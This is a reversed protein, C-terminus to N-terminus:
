PMHGTPQPPPLKGSPQPIPTTPLTGKPPPPVQNIPNTLISNRKVYVTVTSSSLIVNNQDDRIQAEFVYTDRDLASVPFDLYRDSRGIEKGNSLLVVQDPKHLEPDTKVSVYFSDVARITEQDNPAIIDVSVYGEEDDNENMKHTQKVPTGLRPKSSPAPASEDLPKPLDITNIPPLDMPKQDPTPATDSYYVNGNADVHKYIDALAPDSVGCMLLLLTIFVRIHKMM